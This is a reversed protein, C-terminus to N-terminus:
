RVPLNRMYRVFDEELQDIEGFVARFDALRQEPTDQDLAPKKALGKLYQFFQDRHTRILYFTLAWCDAYADLATDKNRLLEDSRILSELDVRVPSNGFHRKRFLDLRPKNVEGIRNWDAAKRNPAEIFMAMGEALWLPNDSFRQHFGSNYALQHTAEHVVTAVNAEAVGEIGRPAQPPRLGVSKLGNRAMNAQMDYLAMRNTLFSYYGIVNRAMDDGLERGAYTLFDREDRFVIAVLPYENPQIQFGAKDFYNNFAHNLREFLAGCSKAFEWDCNYCIIYRNTPYVRFGSGFEHRLETIMEDRSLPRPKEGTQQLEVVHATKELHMRGDRGVFLVESDTRAVLKGEVTQRGDTTDYVIKDARVVGCPLLCLTVLTLYRRAHGPGTRPNM